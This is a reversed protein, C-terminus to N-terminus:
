QHIIAWQNARFYNHGVVWHGVGWGQVSLTTHAGAPDLVPVPMPLSVAQVGTGVRPDTSFGPAGRM